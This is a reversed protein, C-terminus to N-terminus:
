RKWEEKLVGYVVHDVYHNYLWEAQRIRGEQVFNLREPIARSSRNGEAARIEVKNMKLEGFAYDTLAEAVQTMIGKGQYEKGLWYGIYAIKNTWDILNFGAVGVIEQKFIIVSTLSKREVFGQLCHQIFGETDEVKTTGDLWPLWTRLDERSRETLGFVAEADPTDILKLSLQENIKHVFM